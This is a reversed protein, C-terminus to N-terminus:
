LSWSGHHTGPGVDQFTGDPLELVAGTGPPVVVELEYRSGALAWRAEITGSRSDLTVEAWTLGGGPRPAVRFRRYGPEIPELGVTIRHLFDIVAGKSYHNLSGSPVGDDDVGEWHEWVTTAGREIMALWSPPKTQLLLEYALDLHGEGALAPLLYPTSLFGTGVTVGAERVLEALRDAAPRRLEDPILDFSLARVHSAQTQVALRGDAGVFERQWAGRTRDALEEYRAVVSDPKGLIRAVRAVQSASRSLYATAVESKDARKFVAFDTPEGGPELWEGWHFGTDWLFREHPLPTAHAVQRAESRGERAAREGFGVWREMAEWCEVLAATEGYAEYLALPAAVIVDGWGASGHMDGLPGDPGEERNSPSINLVTGDPQQDIMVDALWKRTFDEVDYLFAATPAFVQWDGTWPSRERTPCDTPVECINGRLSWVAADHLKTLMPDSCSFWGTRTLDSHVAVASIDGPGIPGPHGEIRVHQFGHTTFRPEFMDGDIGASIVSDVMGATLPEDLFPFDPVLHDTTLDGSSERWEGHSLTIQTGAPGLEELRCWGNINQGFDAVWVGPRVEEVTAAPLVEVRRVPPCDYAVLAVDIDPVVEVPQWRGDDFGAMTVAQDFLRRDEQQGAILDATIIHSPSSRWRGDTAAVVLADQRIEMWLSTRDGWQDAARLLGTQGRFWGDALLAALANPGADLEVPLTHFPIRERYQTFGPMLERDGVRKGNMYVDVLGCASVALEAAGGTPHEFECRLWYAPREGPPPTVPEHPRVWTTTVVDGQRSM